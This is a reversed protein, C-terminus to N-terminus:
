SPSGWQDYRIVQRVDEGTESYVYLTSSGQPDFIMESIPKQTGRKLLYKSIRLLRGTHDKHMVEILKGKELRGPFKVVDVLAM